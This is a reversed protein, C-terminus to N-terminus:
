SNWEKVVPESKFVFYKQGIYNSVTYIGTGFLVAADKAYVIPIFSLQALIFIALKEGIYYSIFYCSLIVVIFRFISSGFSRESKFTFSKNLFYSAICGITNGIFTSLWYTLHFLHLLLFMSTLGIITNIIGVLLFRIFSHNM